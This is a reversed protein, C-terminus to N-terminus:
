NYNRETEHKVGKYISQNDSQTIGKLMSKFRELDFEEISPGNYVSPGIIIFPLDPMITRIIEITEGTSLGFTTADIVLFDIKEGEMIMKVAFSSHDVVVVSFGDDIFLGYLNKILM